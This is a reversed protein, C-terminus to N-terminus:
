QLYSLRSDPHHSDCHYASHFVLNLLSSRPKLTPYAWVSVLCFVHFEQNGKIKCYRCRPRLFLYGSVVMYVEVLCAELGLLRRACNIGLTKKLLPHSHLGTIGYYSNRRRCGQDFESTIQSWGCEWFHLSSERLAFWSKVVSGHSLYTEASHSTAFYIRCLRRGCVNENKKEGSLICISM